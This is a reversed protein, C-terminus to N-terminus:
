RLILFITIRKHRLAWKTMISFTDTFRHVGKEFWLLFKGFYKKPNLKEAKALRSALLPTLTFSVFLSMLTALVIVISFQSLLNSIMGGVFTLPLFVVVDVLTIALATFGIEKRGKIAAVRKDEGKELHRYINELVVISDDVLIGVVLSMALLTMLNLSYGLLNIAIFVSILSAPIAIMVILANRLSHLFLLMCAAVILIALGLDTIAGDAAMRIFTSSDQAVYFKLGQKAFIGELEKMQEKEQEVLDVTNAENQKQISLMIAGEGDIRGFSVLDKTGDEVSAIDKLRIPSNTKKDSTIIINEIESVSKYKGALRILIQRENNKIKGTPFDLNSGKIAQNIQLLSVKYLDAKERNVDVKIERQEGGISTVKGAGRVKGLAPVIDNKVIDYLQRAPVKASVGINLVPMEDFSIKGLSPELADEPLQSVVANVKRQADQLILDINSNPKLQLIVVSIGEQSMSKIDDLGELSSVADEIKKTVGNEVEAPGAGPYVTMINVVPISMKPMLEYKLNKYSLYGLFGLVAFIVVILTPRKVALETISM